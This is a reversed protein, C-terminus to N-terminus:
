SYFCICLHFSGQKGMWLKTRDEFGYVTVAVIAFWYCSFIAEDRLSQVHIKLRTSINQWCYCTPIFLHLHYSHRSLTTIRNQQRYSTLKRKVKKTKRKCNWPVHLSNYGKEDRNNWRRERGELFILFFLFDGKGIFEREIRM